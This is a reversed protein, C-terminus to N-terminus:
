KSLSNVIGYYALDEFHDDKKVHDILIGEKKMGIKQMVKGSAPNSGFYRAFVKHYQKEDFAFQLMAQAAETAIGNGWYEEGVWYALEGQQFKPNNSLAIAGYLEGSKKDTLALEYSRNEEFNDQHHEIWTLAHEKSYPYPLYLTNKYINYNNCLKAVVAADTKQFLRLLLRKTTITKNQENYIM